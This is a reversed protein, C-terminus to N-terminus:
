LGLGIMLLKDKIKNWLTNKKAKGYVKIKVMDIIKNSAAGATDVAAVAVSGAIDSFDFDEIKELIKTMKKTIKSNTSDDVKGCLSLLM